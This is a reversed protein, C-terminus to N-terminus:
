NARGQRIIDQLGFAGSSNAAALLDSCLCSFDGVSHKILCKAARCADGSGSKQQSFGSLAKLDSLDPFAAAEQHLVFERNISSHLLQNERLGLIPSNLCAIVDRSRGSVAGTLPDSRRCTVSYNNSRAMKEQGGRGSGWGESPPPPPPSFESQTFRPPNDNVDTLKVTVTTTGSLGGLHGGMDKAQLLVLYQDQTERDM